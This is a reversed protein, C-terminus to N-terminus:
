PFMKWYASGWRSGELLFSRVNKVILDRTSGTNIVASVSVYRKETTPGTACAANGVYQM